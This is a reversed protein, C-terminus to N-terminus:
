EKTALIAELMNQTDAAWEFAPMYSGTYTSTNKSELCDWYDCAANEKNIAAQARSFVVLDDLKNEQLTQRLRWVADRYLIKSQEPSKDPWLMTIAETMLLYAGDKDVLAALLEKSKGSSFRVPRGDVLLEFAGFCRLAVERKRGSLNAIESLFGLLVPKEYPKYCFGLLSDGLKKRIENENQAYGSIFVIKLEKRAAVLQKALVVGNISPMIIDLFAADIKNERVYEVADAPNSQFLKYELEKEDVIYPLFNVFADSEDDVVIIKSM